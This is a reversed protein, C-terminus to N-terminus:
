FCFSFSFGAPLSVFTSSAARRSASTDCFSKKCLSNGLTFAVSPSFCQRQALRLTKGRRNGKRQSITKVFLDKQSVEADLLTAELVKTDQFFNCEKKQKNVKSM